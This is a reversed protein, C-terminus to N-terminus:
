RYPDLKTLYGRVYEHVGLEVDKFARDYGAARLRDVRAETFYQYNDVLEAPMPVFEIAPRREVAAFLAHAFQLWTSAQGTGVNFLGSVGPNDLMWLMVAVCDDVHVFDRCQGGDPYDARYSRFLRVAGGDAAARFNKAIFSMMAGKHYENPGYVNFFKLGVCQPPLPEGRGALRAVRRDVLHKSWGYANLPVLRSLADPSSDDDFGARGDGYTAASSAYILPVATDTCWQLLDLSANINTSVISDVDTETTSSNAGMHLVARLKGGERRLWEPLRAPAVM